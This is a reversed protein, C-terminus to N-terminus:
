YHEEGEDDMRRRGDDTERMENGETETTEQNCREKERGKYGHQKAREMMRETEFYIRM